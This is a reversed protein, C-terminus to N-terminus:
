LSILWLEANKCSPAFEMNKGFVNKVNLKKDHHRSMEQVM